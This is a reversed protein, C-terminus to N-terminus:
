EERLGAKRLGEVHLERMWKHRFPQQAFLAVSAGPQHRLLEAIEVRAEDTRGLQALSAAVFKRAVTTQPAFALSRRGAGIAEEYRGAMYLATALVAYTSTAAKKTDLPNMRCAAECCAIARDSEGCVAYVAGARHCVFVSNPHVMVARNALEYAEDFRPSLVGYVFPASVLCTSNEPGVEVARAALRTAEDVGRSWSEHWGQITRTNVSDTLTGLAEAYGPDAELAAVCEKLFDRDLVDDHPAWKFYKGRTLAFSRNFNPHAGINTENRYYRVRADAAAYRRCIEATGDTSANDCIVLEFDRYSQGCISAIAEALYREGNYVPM